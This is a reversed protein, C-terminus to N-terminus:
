PTYMAGCINLSNHLDVVGITYILAPLDDSATFNQYTPTISINVPNKTPDTYTPPYGTTYTAPDTAVLGSLNAPNINVPTDIVIKSTTPNWGSGLFNFVLSGEANIGLPLNKTDFNGMAKDTQSVDVVIVGQMPNAPPHLAAAVIFTALNTFHNNGSPAYGGPTTADAVAIFRSIDFLTNSTGQSTFDPIPTGASYNTMSLSSRPVDVISTNTTSVNAMGNALVALGNTGGYVVMPGKGSGNVTVNGDQAVGKTAGTELTGDNVSLIAAGYGFSMSVNVTATQTVPGVTASAIVQATSPASVNPLWIEVNVTQNNFPASSAITRQYVQNSTGGLAGNLTYPAYSISTLKSGLTAPATNTVAAGLDRVAVVAGGAAYQLAAIMCTRRQTLKSSQSVYAGLAAVSLSVILLIILFPLM